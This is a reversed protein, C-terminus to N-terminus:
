PKVIQRRTGPVAPRVLLGSFEATINEIEPVDAAQWICSPRFVGAMDTLANGKGPSIALNRAVALARPTPATSRLCINDLWERSNYM